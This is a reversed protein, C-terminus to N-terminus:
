PTSGPQQPRLALMGKAALTSWKVYDPNNALDSIDQMVQAQRQEFQGLRYILRILALVIGVSATAFVGALTDFLGNHTLDTLQSAYIHM